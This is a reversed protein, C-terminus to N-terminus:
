INILIFRKMKCSIFNDPNFFCILTSFFNFGSTPHLHQQWDQLLTASNDRLIESIAIVSIQIIEKGFFSNGRDNGLASYQFQYYFLLIIQQVIEPPLNITTKQCFILRFCIQLFARDAETCLRNEPLYKTYFQYFLHLFFLNQGQSIKM